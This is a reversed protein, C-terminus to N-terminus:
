DSGCEERARRADLYEQEAQDLARICEDDFSADHTEEAGAPLGPVVDAGAGMTAEARAAAGAESKGRDQSMSERQRVIEDVGAFPQIDFYRFRSCM